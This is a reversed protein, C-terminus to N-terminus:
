RPAEDARDEAALIRMRDAIFDAVRNGYPQDQNTLVVAVYGSRPYLDVEHNTGPATGGHGVVRLCAGGACNRRLDKMGLAYRGNPIQVTGTMLADTHAADLLEHRLLRTGFRALQAATLAAGGASTPLEELGPARDVWAVGDPGRTHLTAPRSPCAAAPATEPAPMVHARVYDFYDQGSVTEVVRGLLVYGYNAYRWDTGPAFTPERGPLLRVIDQLTLIEGRKARVTKDDIFDGAGGTHNLLQRLTAEGLASSTADPLYRSLPADLALKRAQALQVIATATLMKGLSASHFPVDAARCGAPLDAFDGYGREFVTKGDRVVLVVGSFRRDRSQAQLRADLAAALQADSAFQALSAPDTKPPALDAALIRYPPAAEVKLAIRTIADSYPDTLEADAQTDNASLLRHLRLGGLYVAFRHDDQIYKELAPANARVYAGYRGEDQSDFAALWERLRIEARPTHAKAGKQAGWASPAAALALLIGFALHRLM